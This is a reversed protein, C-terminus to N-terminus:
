FSKREIKSIIRAYETQQNEKRNKKYTSQWSSYTYTELIFEEDMEETDNIIRFLVAIRCMLNNLGSRIKKFHRTLIKPMTKEIQIEMENKWSAKM